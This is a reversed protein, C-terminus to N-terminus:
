MLNAFSARKKDKADHKKEEIITAQKKEPASDKENASKVDANRVSLPAVNKSTAELESLLSDAPRQVDTPFRQQPYQAPVQYGNPMGPAIPLGYLPPYLGYAAPDPAAPQGGNKVTEVRRKRRIKKEILMDLNCEDIIEEPLQGNELMSMLGASLMTRFVDQPRSHRKASNWVKLLLDDDTVGEKLYIQLAQTRKFSENTM